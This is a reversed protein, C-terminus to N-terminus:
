NKKTASIIVDGILGGALEGAKYSALGLTILAAITKSTSLKKDKAIEKIEHSIEKTVIVQERRNDNSIM